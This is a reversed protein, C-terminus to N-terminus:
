KCGSVSVTITDSGTKDKQMYAFSSVNLNTADNTKFVKEADEGPFTYALVRTNEKDNLKLTTRVRTPSDNKSTVSVKMLKFDKVNLTGLDLTKGLEISVTASGLVTCSLDSKASATPAGQVAFTSALMALLAIVGVILFKFRM